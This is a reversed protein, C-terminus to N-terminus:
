PELRAGQTRGFGTDADYRQESARAGSMVLDTLRDVQADLAACDPWTGADRIGALVQQGAQVAIAHHGLEHTLLADRYADFLHRQDATAQVLEPLTIETVVEVVVDDAGCRGGGDIHQRYTWTLNWAAQGHFRQWWRPRVPTARALAASLTEDPEVTVPYHRYTVRERVEARAAGTVGALCTVLLCLVAVVPPSL